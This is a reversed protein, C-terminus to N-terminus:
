KKGGRPRPRRSRRTYALGVGLVLAPAGFITSYFWILDKQQTHEIRVDEEVNVEGAFSEEGGLWRVADVVLLQNTMFNSMVLDTVADADAMVFARMENPTPVDKIDDKKDPKKEDKKDPPKSEAAPTGKSQAPQSVAVALGFGKREEQGDDYDYNKNKDGFTQSMARVAVDVKAASGSARDVTGAGAVLVAARSSNRSLTSVAAHSSFRNTILLTRDSNNFRRRVYQRDNALIVPNFDVGVVRALDNLGSQVVSPPAKTELGVLAPTEEPAGTKGDGEAKKDDAVKKDGAAAKKDDAVKKDAGPKDGPLQSVPKIASAPEVPPPAGAVVLDEVPIADPDLAIFLKGGQDAYRKLSALEEPALPQTPGLVMVIDADDPVDTALGQTLGLNKVLYHQKGLLTKLIQGSRGEEKDVGRTDDNIEGHGVTLYITRQSRLLKYLREQFDRDLTRLKKEADKMETGIFVTRKAEGKAIVITGDQVVKLDNAIKPVLYRDYVATQLNPVDAALAKLYGEVERRVPSVEPFFATVKIPQGLGEVLKRTSESPESTKFYSFDVKLDADEAAYVFLAGYTAALSLAFGAATAARVRRSELREANRMPYLAAEAFFMPVVSVCILVIYAVTLLGKVQARVEDESDGLGLREIGWETSLAYFVLAAIGVLSLVGLLREIRGREGQAQSGPLFRMATAALVCSLGFGSVVWRGSELSVLIREGIFLIILGAIYLPVVWAPAGTGPSPPPAPPAAAEEPADEPAEPEDGDPQASEESVKEDENLAM